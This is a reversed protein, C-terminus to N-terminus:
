AQRTPMSASPDPIPPTRKGSPFAFRGSHDNWVCLLDDSGPIRRATAPSLPSALTTPEPATWHEGGDNSTCAYQFGHGARIYMWLRGDPLEVVGPEQLVLKREACPVIETADKKWTRGEDDSYYAFM